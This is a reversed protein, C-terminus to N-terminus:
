EERRQQREETLKSGVSTGRRESGVDSDSGGKQTEEVATMVTAKGEEEEEEEEWGSVPAKLRVHGKEELDLVGLVDGRETVPVAEECRKWRGLGVGEHALRQLQLTENAGWELHAYTDARRCRLIFSVIPELFTSIIIIITGLALILTLGFLSFNTYATSRIKQNNCFYHQEKSGPRNLYPLVDKNSPGTAVDVYMGQITALVTNFWSEVELQWQNDALPGQVGNTLSARATLAQTRLSRVINEVTPTSQIFAAIAWYLRNYLENSSGILDGVSQIADDFSLLATCHDKTICWQHQNACALVSGPSDQLRLHHRIGNLVYTGPSAKHASYWDDNVDQAFAVDNASLFFFSIDANPYALEPIPYFTSYSGNGFVAEIQSITYDADTVMKDTTFDSNVRMQFHSDQNPLNYDEDILNGYYYIVFTNTIGNKTYTHLRQYSETKVPSCLVKTRYYFQKDPPLNVGLDDHANLLGSDLVLSHNPSRCIDGGFPCSTNKTIQAPLLRERIYFNCSERNISNNAYCQTAYNAYAVTHDTWYPFLTTDIDTITSNSKLNIHGCHESRILVENGLATSISSSFGSAAAFAGMVCMALAILPLVRYYPRKSDKKWAKLITVLSWTGSTGNASNRLAAQVQHHLADRPMETSRYSHLAYCALRWFNTGVITVFLAVFAILLAGDRQNLTLTAGFVPGRSWNTWTGLHITYYSPQPSSHMNFFLPANRLFFLLREPLKITLKRRPHQKSVLM